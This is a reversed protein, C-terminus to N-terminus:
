EKSGRVGQLREEQRLLESLLESGQHLHNVWEPLEPSAASHAVGALLVGPDLPGRPGKFVGRIAVVGVVRDNRVFRHRSIGVQSGLRNLAHSDRLEPVAQLDRRFKAIADGIIPFAKYRRAVRLVGTRVFWHIRGIDALALYRGNNVHGNFDLDNPWVRFRVRTTALLDVKSDSILGFGVRALRLWPFMSNDGALTRQDLRNWNRSTSSELM